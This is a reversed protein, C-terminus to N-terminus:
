RPPYQSLFRRYTGNKYVSWPRWNTGNNSVKMMARINTMPDFLQENSSIGFERRRAPGMSGIMNIQFLGYSKDGTRANGNYARPNGRSEGMAVAWAIKLKEGTLGSQRLYNYLAKPGSGGASTAPPPAPDNNNGSSTGPDSPPRSTGASTTGGSPTDGGSTLSTGGGDGGFPNGGPVGGTFVGSMFQNLIQALNQFLSQFLNAFGQIGAGGSGSGGSSSPAVLISSGSFSPAVESGGSAQRQAEIAGDQLRNNLNGIQATAPVAALAILLVLSLALMRRHKM